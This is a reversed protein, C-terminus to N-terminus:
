QFGKVTAVVSEINEIKADPTVGHGLNFIFGNQGRMEELIRTTERAAIQPTTTLIAPDLNGQVGMTPPMQSRAEALSISWDLGLVQANTQVLEQLSGATGRSFLIVPVVGKLSEIIRRIWRGSVEEYEDSSLVGGLSDFIQVADVGADAQMKLYDTISRTLKEMLQEFLQPEAQSLRRAQVFESASGGEMMYNALTWPSGTFGLLATQGDLERGIQGIAQAVYDLREVVGSECLREVDQQSSIAFDMQIGGEERFTYGQGMAEPIVLIDSFMVAADFGFRRIPQLTVETALDPTQVMEIFSHKKKLERYEPLARGAQRMMWIPPRDVPRCACADLFRQRSSDVKGTM